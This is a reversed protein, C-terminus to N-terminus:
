IARWTHRFLSMPTNGEEDPRFQWSWSQSVCLADIGSITHLPRRFFMCLARALIRPSKYTRKLIPLWEESTLHYDNTGDVERELEFLDEANRELQGHVPYFAGAQKLFGLHFERSGSRFAYPGRIVEEPNVKENFHIITTAVKRSESNPNLLGYFTRFMDTYIEDQAGNVADQPQVFHEVSGNAIIGDFFWQWVSESNRYDLLRVNLGKRQCWELQRQSVTIGYAEACREEAVELLTGYGCGVDLIKSGRKCQIEDLLYDHQRRQAEGYSVDPDGDYIGETWDENGSELSVLNLLDYTSRVNGM